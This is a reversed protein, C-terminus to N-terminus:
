PWDGHTGTCDTGCRECCRGAAIDVVTEFPLTRIDVLCESWTGALVSWADILARDVAYAAVPLWQPLFARSWVWDTGDFEFGLRLMAAVAGTEEEPRGPTLRPWGFMRVEIEDWPDVVVRGYGGSGQETSALLVVGGDTCEALHTMVQDALM